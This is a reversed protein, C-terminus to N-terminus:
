ESGSSSRLESQVVVLHLQFLVVLYLAPLQAPGSAGDDGDDDDQFVARM